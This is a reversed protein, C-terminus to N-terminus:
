LLSPRKLNVDTTLEFRCSFVSCGQHSLPFYVIGVEIVIGAIHGVWRTAELPRTQKWKM